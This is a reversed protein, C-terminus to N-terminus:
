PKRMRETAEPGDPEVTAVYPLARGEGGCDLGYGILWQDPVEFGVYDAHIDVTRRSPKDLLVCTRLWMPERAALHTRALQLTLGSDLIDDVLLVTRRRVDAAVDKLISVTGNAVTAPGYHSVALFDVRPELGLRAMARVLDAVFVFSGTLLGVVLPAVSPLDRQIAEALENVRTGILGEAVQVRHKLM